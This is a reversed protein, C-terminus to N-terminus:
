GKFNCRRFVAKVFSKGAKSRDKSELWNYKAILNEVCYFKFADFDPQQNFQSITKEYLDIQGGFLESVFRMSDNISILSKIDAVPTFSLKEALDAGEKFTFLDEIDASVIIPKIFNQKVPAPAEIKTEVVVPKELVVPAPETIQTKPVTEFVEKPTDLPLDFTQIEPKPPAVPAPAVPPEPAKPLPAAVAELNYICDYAARFQQLLLDKELQTILPNRSVQQLSNALKNILEQHIPNM